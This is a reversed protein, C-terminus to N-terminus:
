AKFSIGNNLEPVEEMCVAIMNDVVAKREAQISEKAEAVKLLMQNTKLENQLKAPVEIKRQLSQNNALEQRVFAEEDDGHIDKNYRAKAKAREVEIERELKAQEDKLYAQIRAQIEEQKEKLSEVERASNSKGAADDEFLNGDTRMQAILMGVAGKGNNVFRKGNDNQIKGTDFNLFEVYGNSM